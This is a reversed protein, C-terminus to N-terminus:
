GQANGTSLLARIASAQEFRKNAEDLVRSRLSDLRDIEAATEDEVAYLEDAADELDDAAQTFVTVAAAAKAAASNRREDLTMPRPTTTTTKKIKRAM